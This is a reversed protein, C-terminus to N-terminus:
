GQDNVAPQSVAPQDAAQEANDAAGHFRFPKSMVVGMVFSSVRYDNQKARKVIVDIACQDEPELGRGIAYTLLKNAFHRAIDEERTRVLEILEIPGSFAEGNLEGAPDIAHGHPDADRWRGIGDFNEMALGIPDMQRHCSACSPDDRHRALRE